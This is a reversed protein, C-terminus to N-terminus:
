RSRPAAVAQSETHPLHLVDTHPLFPRGQTTFEVWEGDPGWFYFSLFEVDKKDAENNCHEILSTVRVGKQQLRSRYERIKEASVNFAIHNVSGNATTFDGKMMTAPDPSSVGPARPVQKPFWFYALMSGRGSDFFFHQGGDPFNITKALRLGVKETWFDCTRRMDSCVLALHSVGELQVADPRPQTTRQRFAAIDEGAAGGQTQAAAGANAGAESFLRHGAVRRPAPPGQPSVLHTAVTALREAPGM